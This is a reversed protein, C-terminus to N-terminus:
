DVYECSELKLINFDTNPYRRKLDKFDYAFFVEEENTKINMFWFEYM